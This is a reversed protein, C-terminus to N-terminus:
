KVMVMRKVQRFDGAEIKYFYIGSSLGSGDFEIEYSGASQKENVLTTVKKGLADYVILNVIRNENLSYRIVTIPNFPNPYNQYLIFHNPIETNHEIATLGGNTTHVIGSGAAWVKLNNIASVSPNSINTTQRFWSSGADTTKIITTFNNGAWGVSDSGFSLEIGGDNTLVWNFGGDTTKYSFGSSIIGVFENFFYIDNLQQTFTNQLNWNNGGNTTRFLKSSIGDYRGFTWGTDKNIFFINQIKYSADLQQVWSVSGNTTKYLGGFLIDDDCAWGTDKNIFYSDIILHVPPPSVLMWNTGGNSTKYMRAFGSGTGGAAYGTNIDLFQIVNLSQPQSLQIAWNNGGNTTSMIYSTDVPNNDGQTVVWGNLSDLFFIDNVFDNVPLTQVYWGPPNSSFSLSLFLVIFASLSFRKM